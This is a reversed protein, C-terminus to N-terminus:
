QLQRREEPNGLLKGSQNTQYDKLVMMRTKVKIKEDSSVDNQQLFISYYKVADQYNQMRDCVLAINFLLRSNHPHLEEARKYWALAEDPNNLHSYALGRHFYIEFRPGDKRNEAMDLYSLARQPNGLGIEAIAIHLLVQPNEPDLRKLKELLPYAEPFAATKIHVTALNFLADFHEPNKWLVEQYMRAADDLKNQRHYTLAKQFFLNLVEQDIATKTAKKSDEKVKKKKVEQVQALSPYLTKVPESTLVRQPEAALHDNQREPPKPEGSVPAELKMEKTIKQEPEAPLQTPPIFNRTEVSQHVRSAAPALSKIPAPGPIYFLQLAGLVGLTSVLVGILVVIYIKTKKKKLAEPDNRLYGTKNPRKHEGGKKRLAENLLSM